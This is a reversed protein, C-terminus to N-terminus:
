QLPSSATPALVQSEVRTIKSPNFGELDALFEPSQMYRKAVEAPDAGEDLSVLVFLRHDQDNSSTWFGHARIGFKAFSGLLHRPYIVDKFFGLDEQSALTYIRLEYVRM